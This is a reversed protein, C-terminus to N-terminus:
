PVFRVTVDHERFLSKIIAERKRAPIDVRDNIAMLKDAVESNNGRRTVLCEIASEIHDAPTALDRIDSIKAGGLQRACFGLCCMEQTESAYLYGEGRGRGWRKRSITLIQKKTKAM